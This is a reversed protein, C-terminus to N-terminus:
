RQGRNLNWVVVGATFAIALSALVLLGIFFIELALLM